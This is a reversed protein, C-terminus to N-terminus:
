NKLKCINNNFTGELENCSSKIANNILGKVIEDYKQIENENPEQYIGNKHSSKTLIHSVKLFLFLQNGSQPRNKNLGKYDQRNYLSYFPNESNAIWSEILYTSLEYNPMGLVKSPKRNREMAFEGPAFVENQVISASIPDDELQTKISSLLTNLASKECNFDGICNSLEFVKNSFPKSVYCRGGDDPMKIQVGIYFGKDTEIAIPRMLEDIKLPLGKSTIRTAGEVWIEKITEKEFIKKLNYPLFLANNEVPNNEFSFHKSFYCMKEMLRGSKEAKFDIVTNITRNYKGYSSTKIVKDLQNKLSDIKSSDYKIMAYFVLDQCISAYDQQNDPYGIHIPKSPSISQKPLSDKKSKKILDLSNNLIITRKANKLDDIQQQIYESRLKIFDDIMRDSVLVTKNELFPICEGDGFQKCYEIASARADKLLENNWSGGWGGIPFEINNHRYMSPVLMNIMPESYSIAIVKNMPLSDYNKWNDLNRIRKMIKEEILSRVSDKSIKERNELFPIGLLDNTNIQQCFGRNLVAFLALFVILTIRFTNYYM